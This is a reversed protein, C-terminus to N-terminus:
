TIPASGVDPLASMVHRGGSSCLRRQGAYGRKADGVETVVQSLDADWREDNVAALHCLGRRPKQSACGHRWRRCGVGCRAPAGCPHLVLWGPSRFSWAVPRERWSVRVAGSDHVDACAQAPRGFSLRGYAHETLSDNTYGLRIPGRRGYRVSAVDSVPQLAWSVTWRRIVLPLSTDRDGAAPGAASNPRGPTSWVGLETLTTGGREQRM